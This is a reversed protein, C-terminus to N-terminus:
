NLEIDVERRVQSLEREERIWRLTGVLRRPSSGDGSLMPNRQTIHGFWIAMPRDILTERNVIVKGHADEIRMILRDGPLTGFVEVWFSLAPSRAPIRTAVYRGAEASARDPIETAFGAILAGSARYNLEAKASDSWLTGADKGCSENDPNFPDIVKGAHRVVLDVHPFETRGSLGILGLTTGTTVQQGIRVRVSGNKLHSYQTEWGDGHDIRVGNGADKGQLANRGREKVSIDPEGDRVGVVRGDAVALVAVGSNMAPLDRVRFDTGTHGDYTLYGCHFDRRGPGPDHDVYNQIFCESNLACRVPLELVLPSAFGTM